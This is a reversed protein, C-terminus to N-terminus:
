GTFYELGTTERFDALAKKAIVRSDFAHPKGDVHGDCVVSATSTMWPVPRISDRDGIAMFERGHPEMGMGAIAFGAFGAGAGFIMEKHKGPVLKAKPRGHIDVFQALYYEFDAM